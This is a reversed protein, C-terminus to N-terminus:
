RPVEVEDLLQGIADEVTLGEIEAESKLVLRHRLVPRAMAKVDDPTVYSKGALAASAKASLLLSVAARPSAGIRIRASERTARCLGAVYAFISEEVQVAQAAQRLATAEDRTLVRSVGAAALDHADFGRHARRLVEVEDALAPYGIRIKMLFRDTQAEPLPYTGELELPNETAVVFFHKGLAHAAGDITVQREEMAELLAAQTKPPTRNIEDALLVETFIPGKALQFRQESPRWISTGLIDAPMLDPTFQVRTFTLDLCRALAKALLTKAVGPVGELLVHGGAVYACLLETVVADQGVVAKALEGRVRALAQPIM